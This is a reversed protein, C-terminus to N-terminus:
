SFTAIIFNTIAAAFGVVVLGIIAGILAQKAQTVRSSDGTSTIYLFGSIVIVVVAAIGAWFYITNFVNAVANGENTIGGFGIDAPNITIAFFEKM